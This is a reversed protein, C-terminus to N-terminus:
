RYHNLYDMLPKPLPLLSINSAVPRPMLRRILLRCCHILKPPTEAQTLLMKRCAENGTMEIPRLSRANGQYINAGYELLASVCDAFGFYAATHLPAHHRKIANPNAGAHLLSQVCDVFGRTCAVHLATGFQNESKELDAGMKLLMEICEVHGNLAAEHLPPFTITLSPNVEAGADILLLACQLSGKACAFCLPTSGDINHVNTEAGESILINVAGPHGGFCAEHLPTMFDVTGSNVHAGLSILLKLLEVDGRKAAVHLATEHNRPNAFNVSVDPRALMKGIYQLPHRNENITQLLLENPDM